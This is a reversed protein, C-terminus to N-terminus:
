HGASFVLRDLALDFSSIDPTWRFEGTEWILSRAFLEYVTGEAPLGRKRSLDTPGPDTAGQGPTVGVIVGRAARDWVVNPGWAM